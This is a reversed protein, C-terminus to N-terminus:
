TWNRAKTPGAPYVRPLCHRGPLSNKEMDPLNSTRRNIRLKNATLIPGSRLRVRPRKHKDKRAPMFLSMFCTTDVGLFYVGGLRSMKKM